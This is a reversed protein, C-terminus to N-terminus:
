FSEGMVADVFARSIPWQAYMRRDDRRFTGAVLVGSL